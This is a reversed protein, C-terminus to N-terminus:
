DLFNHTIETIGDPFLYERTVKHGAAENDRAVTEALKDARQLGIVATEVIQHDVLVNYYTEGDRGPVGQVTVTHHAKAAERDRRETTQRLYYQTFSTPM